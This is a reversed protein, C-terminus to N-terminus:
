LASDFRQLKPLVMEESLEMEQRLLPLLDIRPAMTKMLLLRRQKQLIDATQNPIKTKKPSRRQCSQPLMMIPSKVLKQLLSCHALQIHLRKSRRGEEEKRRVVPTAMRELSM